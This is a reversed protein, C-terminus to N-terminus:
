SSWLRTRRTSHLSALIVDKTYRNFWLSCDAAIRSTLNHTRLNVTGPPLPRCFTSPLSPSLSFSALEWMKRRGGVGSEVRRRGRAVGTELQPLSLWGSIEGGGSVPTHTLSFSFPLIPPSFSLLASDCGNVYMGLGSGDLDQRGWGGGSNHVRIDTRIDDGPHAVLYLIFFTRGRRM